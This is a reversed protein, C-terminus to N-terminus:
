AMLTKGSLIGVVTSRAFEYPYQRVMTLAKACTKHPTRIGKNLAGITVHM